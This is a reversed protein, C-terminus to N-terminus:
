RQWPLHYPPSSAERQPLACTDWRAVNQLYCIHALLVMLPSTFAKKEAQTNIFVSQFLFSINEECSRGWAILM